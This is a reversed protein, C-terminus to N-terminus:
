QIRSRLATEPANKVGKIRLLVKLIITNANSKNKNEGLYCHDRNKSLMAPIPCLKNTALTFYRDPFVTQGNPATQPM